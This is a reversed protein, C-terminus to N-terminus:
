IRCYWKGASMGLTSTGGFYTGGSDQTTVTTNGNAYTPDYGAPSNVPNFTAFNNSPNDYTPTLTGSTTLTTANPSSDLDLNTRDEMTLFFGRNGYSSVTPSTKIKWIGSTADTEGWNSGDYAVGDVFHVHSMEGNYYYDIGTGATDGAGIRTRNNANDDMCNINQTAGYTETGFDTVREGNVFVKGRDGSTVNGMDISFALNYWAATDRFTQTTVLDIFTTSGSHGYLHLQRSSQHVFFSLFDTVVGDRTQCFIMDRSSDKFDLKVWASFSFVQESTPSSESGREIYTTAM